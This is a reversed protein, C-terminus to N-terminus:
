LLSIFVYKKRELCIFESKGAGTPMIGLVDRGALIADILLEQGERFADYGFYNKLVTFKNELAKGKWFLKKMSINKKGPIIFIFLILVFYNLFGRDYIICVLVFVGNYM